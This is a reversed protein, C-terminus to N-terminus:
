GQPLGAFTGAVADAADNNVIVFTSFPPPVFGPAVTLTAGGLNVVGTVDVQDYGTGVTLGNLDVSVTTSANLTIAGTALIGTNLSLGPAVTGGTTTVASTRGTGGLAGGTMSVAM